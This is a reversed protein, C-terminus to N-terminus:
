FTTLFGVSKAAENRYKKKRDLIHSEYFGLFNNSELLVSIHFATWNKMIALRDANVLDLPSVCIL